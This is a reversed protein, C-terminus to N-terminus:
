RPWRGRERNSDALRQNRNAEQAVQMPNRLLLRVTPSIPLLLKAPGWSPHQRRAACILAAVEPTIRHPCRHPARSRERLGDPGDDEYRAIWKSGTKRSVGYRECLERMSYLSREWDTVFPMREAMPAMERWPM